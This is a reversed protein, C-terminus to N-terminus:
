DLRLISEDTGDAESEGGRSLMEGLYCFSKVEIEFGDLILPEFPRKKPKGCAPCQFFQVGTVRSLGLCHKHCWRHCVHCRISNDGVVNGCVGCPFEGSTVVLTERCSVCFFRWFRWFIMFKTKRMNIQM